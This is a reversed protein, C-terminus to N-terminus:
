IFKYYKYRTSTCQNETEIAVRGGEPESGSPTSYSPSEKEKPEISENLKSAHYRYIHDWYNSTNGSGCIETNCVMCVSIKKNKPDKKFFDWVKSKKVRTKVSHVVFSYILTLLDYFDLFTLM